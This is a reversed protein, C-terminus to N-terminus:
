TGKRWQSIEARGCRQYRKEKGAATRHQVSEAAPTLANGARTDFVFLGTQSNLQSSEKKKKLFGLTASLLRDHCSQVSIARTM